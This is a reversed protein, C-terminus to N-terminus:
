ENCHSARLTGVPNRRRGSEDLGKVPGFEVGFLELGLSLAGYAHNFERRCIVDDGQWAIFLVVKVAIADFLPEFLVVIAREAFFLDGFLCEFFLFLLEFFLLFFIIVIVIIFPRLGSRL